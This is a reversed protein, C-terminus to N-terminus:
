LNKVEDQAALVGMVAAVIAGAVLAAGFTTQQTVGPWLQPALGAVTAAVDIFCLAAILTVTKM